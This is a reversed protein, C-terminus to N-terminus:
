KGFFNNRKPNLFNFMWVFSWYLHERTRFKFIIIKFVKLFLKVFYNMIIVVKQTWVDKTLIELFKQVM